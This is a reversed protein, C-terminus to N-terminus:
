PRGPKSQPHKAYFAPTYSLDPGIWGEDVFDLFYQAWVGDGNPLQVDTEAGSFVCATKANVIARGFGLFEPRVARCDPNLCRAFGQYLSEGCKGCTAPLSRRSRGPKPAESM